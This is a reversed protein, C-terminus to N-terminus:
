LDFQYCDQMNLLNFTLSVAIKCHWFILPWVSRAHKLTLSVIKQLNLNFNLSFLHMHESELVKLMALNVNTKSKFTRNSRQCKLGTFNGDTQSKVKWVQLIEM